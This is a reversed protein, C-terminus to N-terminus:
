YAARVGVFIRNPWGHSRNESRVCNAERRKKDAPLWRRSTLVRDGSTGSSESQPVQDVAVARLLIESLRRRGTNDVRSGASTARRCFSGSAPHKCGEEAKGQFLDRNDPLEHFQDIFM